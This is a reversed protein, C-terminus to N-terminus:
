FERALDPIQFQGAIIRLLHTERVISLGMHEPKKKLVEENHRIAKHINLWCVQMGNQIEYLELDPQGLEADIECVYCYSRMKLVDINDKHWPRYEEFLGFPTVIKVNRAGTEEALERVMACEIDEGQEVGGGPLSYDDYRKTYLVLIDSGRLVIARTAVREGVRHEPTPTIHKLTHLLRMM